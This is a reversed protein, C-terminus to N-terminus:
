SMGSHTVEFITKPAKEDRFAVITPYHGYFNFPIRGSAEALRQLDADKLSGIGRKIGLTKLLGPQYVESFGGNNNRWYPLMYFSGGTPLDFILAEGYLTTSGGMGILSNKLRAYFCEM